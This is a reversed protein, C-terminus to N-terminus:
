HDLWCSSKSICAIIISTIIMTTIFMICTNDDFRGVSNM